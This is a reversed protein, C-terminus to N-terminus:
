KKFRSWLESLKEWGFMAIYAVPFGAFISLALEYWVFGVSIVGIIVFYAITTLMVSVIMTYASTPVKKLVGINKTLEVIMNVLFTLIALIGLGYSQMASFFSM